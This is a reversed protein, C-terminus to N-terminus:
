RAPTMALRSRAQRLRLAAGIAGFGLILMAWTSPEPVAGFVPRNVISKNITFATNGSHVQSKRWSNSVFVTGPSTFSGAPMYAFIGTLGLPTNIGGFALFNTGLKLGDGDLQVLSPSCTGASYTCTIGSQITREGRLRYINQEFSFSGTGGYPTGNLVADFTFDVDFHMFKAAQAQGALGSCALAASAALLRVFRM